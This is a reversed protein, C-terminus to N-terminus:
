SVSTRGPCQIQINGKLCQRKVLQIFQRGLPMATVKHQISISWSLQGIIKYMEDIVEVRISVAGHIPRLISRRFWREHSEEIARRGLRDRLIGEPLARHVVECGQEQFIWKLYWV